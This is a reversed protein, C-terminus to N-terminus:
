EGWTKFSINLDVDGDIGLISGKESYQWIQYNYPYYLAEGYYAFWKEYQEVLQLDLLVAGMEMNHYIMPTYGAEKIKECFTITNNTREEISIKNMRAGNDAVKEVDFVVPYDVRYPAIQELVFEAEEIAEGENIAQSFFYVGVKLGAGLAGKINNEFQDDLVLTGNGYGRYGVRIFVFEVDSEAVKSWDIEGQHKSVDIGKHSIVEGNELYQFEGNDLVTLNEQLRGHKSLDDRIEVFHYRGSSAVVMHNPYLPRLTEVVSDGSGLGQEIEALILDREAGAAAQLAEAIQKDVEEKTYTIVMDAEAADAVAQAAETNEEMKEDIWMYLASGGIIIFFLALLAGLMSLIYTLTKKRKSM